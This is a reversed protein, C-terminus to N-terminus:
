REAGVRGQWVCVGRRCGFAYSTQSEAHFNPPPALSEESWRWGWKGGGEGVQNHAACLSLKFHYDLRRPNNQMPLYKSASLRVSHLSANIPHNIIWDSGRPPQNSSHHCKIHAPPLTCVRVCVCVSERLWWREIHVHSHNKHIVMPIFIPLVLDQLLPMTRRARRAETVCSSHLATQQPPLLKAATMQILM